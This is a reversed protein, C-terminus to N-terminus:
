MEIATMAAEGDDSGHKELAIKIEDKLYDPIVGTVEVIAAVMKYKKQNVASKLAETIKDKDKDKVEQGTEYILDANGNIVALELFGTVRDICADHEALLCAIKPKNHQLAQEIPIYPCENPEPDANHELLSEAIEVEDDTENNNTRVLKVIPSYTSSGDPDAGNQLLIKAEESSKTQVATWLARTRDANTVFSHQNYDAFLDAPATQTRISAALLEAAHTKNDVDNTEGTLLLLINYAEKFSLNNILVEYNKNTFSHKDIYFESHETNFNKIEQKLSNFTEESKSKLTSLLKNKIDDVNHKQSKNEARKENEM